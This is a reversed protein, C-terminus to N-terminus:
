FDRAPRAAATAAAAPLHEEFWATALRAVAELAGPEAFLHGAGPVIEVRHPVSLMAAARRNLELVQEDAGGVILLTPAAVAPLHQAALDPRGGRSVVARVDDRRSAAAWLAAAAGTSAGFLGLPLDGAGADARAWAVAAEVRRALLGIDFVLDRRGAQAEDLLDLLLTAFGAGQLTRAVARNRSSHRGSDSGHAFVVLGRADAPRTLDGLLTTGDVPIAVPTETAGWARALLAIVEHDEVPSFDEYWLGVARFPRPVELCVVEDAERRLEAVASASGVPVAVIIRAASRRRLARVAALDSLGTALGDDVVVVTRGRVDVPARGDRYAAVRRALEQSERQVARDLEDDTLGVARAAGSDLVGVGDEAVAGVGYEPQGPAGLKRVALVDLPARLAAAVEVAVPVGGRPLAVVVPREPALPALAAALRRGAQRRDPFSM